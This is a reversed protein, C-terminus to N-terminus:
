KLLVLKQNATFNDSELKLVYVGAPYNNLMVAVKYVGAKQEGSMVTQIERGAMDYVKLNVMGDKALTYNVVSIQNFPNPYAQSLSYELPTIGEVVEVGLNERDALAAQLISKAYKPNHLGESGDSKVFLYNYAARLQPVTYNQTVVVDPEGVPPLLMALTNMLGAIEERASEQVRDGDWDDVTIDDFSNQIENHCEVCAETHEYGNSSKMAFTHDGVNLYGPSNQESPGSSMHCGVCGNEIVRNHLTSEMERDYHIANTGALMDAQNSYHPGFHASYRQVYTEANRRSQHCNACLNGSAFDVSVGNQLRVSQVTRVQHENTADHPNHCVSCTIPMYTLNKLSDPVGALHDLFGYGSHCRVCAARSEEVPHSHGSKAWQLPITHHTGSDHCKACPGTELSVVMKNDANNGMHASGPGHCNECQINAMKATEPYRVKMTDWTGPRLGGNASDLFVWGEQRAMDDFGHNNALSDTDYGVVHCRVCMARWNLGQQGDVARAFVDAHKTEQWESVKRDVQGNHCVACQPVQPNGVIGGVGVYNAANIALEVAESQGAASTVRLSIRYTGVLDPTFKVVPTNTANLQAQSNRPRTTMSWNWATITTDAPNGVLYVMEGVGVNPLGTSAKTYIDLTDQAVLRESVGVVKIVATPQAFSPMVMILLIGVIVLHIGTKKM